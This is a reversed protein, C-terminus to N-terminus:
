RGASLRELRALEARAQAVERQLPEEARERLALFHRYARIAGEVDGVLTAMRAETHVARATFPVM